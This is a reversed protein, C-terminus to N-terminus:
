WLWKASKIRAMEVFRAWPRVLLDLVTSRDLLRDHM